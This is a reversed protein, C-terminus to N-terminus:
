FGEYTAINKIVGAHWNQIHLKIVCTLHKKELLYKNRIEDQIM